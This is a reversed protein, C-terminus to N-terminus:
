SKPDPIRKDEVRFSVVPTVVLDGGTLSCVIGDENSDENSNGINYKCDM